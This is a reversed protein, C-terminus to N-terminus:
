SHDNKPSVFSRQIPTCVAIVLLSVFAPVLEAMVLAASAGEVVGLVVVPDNYLKRVIYKM